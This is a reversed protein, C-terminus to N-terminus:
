ALNFIMTQGCPGDPDDCIGDIEGVWRAMTSQTTALRSGPEAIGRSALLAVAREINRRLAGLDLQDLRPAPKKRATKKKAAKRPAAKKAAKKAAKRKVPVKKAAKKSSKRSKAV